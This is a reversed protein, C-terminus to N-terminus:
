MEANALEEQIMNKLDVASFTPANQDEVSESEERNEELNLHINEPDVLQSTSTEMKKELEVFAADVDMFKEQTESMFQDWKSLYQSLMNKIEKVEIELFIYKNHIITDIPLPKNELTYVRDTLTTLVEKDVLQTNESLNNPLSVSDDEQMQQMYQEVRGLRITILGIADSISIKNVPVLQKQSQQQQQQPQGVRRNQPQPQQSFAAQSAISTNPRSRQVPQPDGGARRNRAAAISRSSSM